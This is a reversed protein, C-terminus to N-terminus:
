GNTNEQEGPLEETEGESEQESSILEMSQEQQEKREEKDKKADMVFNMAEAIVASDTSMDMMYKYCNNILACAELKESTKTANLAVDWVMQLVQSLGSMAKEYQLPIDNQIHTRLNEQAKTRIYQMDISILSMSVNLMKAIETQSHGQASLELVKGRRLMINEKQFKLDTNM